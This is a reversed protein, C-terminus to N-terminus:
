TPYVGTSIVRNGSKTVLGRICKDKEGQVKASGSRVSLDIIDALGPGVAYSQIVGAYDCMQYVFGASTPKSGRDGRTPCQLGPIRITSLFKGVGPIVAGWPDPADMAADYLTTEEIYPLIQFDWGLVDTGASRMNAALKTVNYHAQ